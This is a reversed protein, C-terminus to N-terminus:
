VGCIGECEDGFMDIQGNETATSLDVQDLPICSRHLFQVGHLNITKKKVNQFDKEFEVAKKFEEPEDDRLRRWEANNRYPCYICASRPPEPYGNNKMWNICDSRRMGLDILPWRNKIWPRRAPKMRHAEDLSIGIWQIVNIQKEGKRIGAIERIKKEIVIIKYDSTCQRLLPAVSGDKKKTFLPILSRVWIESLGDEKKTRERITLMDDTMNGKTVRYVPFPLQKEIWDLWKYVSAPEAQTDAFIAADPMPTIEGNAAMLAITSSQVGAGFSLINMM